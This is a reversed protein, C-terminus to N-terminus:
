RLPRAAPALERVVEYARQAQYGDFAAVQVLHRKKTFRLTPVYAVFGLEGLRRVVAQATESDAVEIRMGFGYHGLRQSM